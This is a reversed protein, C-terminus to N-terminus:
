RGTAAALGLAAEYARVYEAGVTSWDYRKARERGHEGLVLAQGPAQLLEIVVAVLDDSQGPTVYRAAEGAVDRFAGLDSAVVACGAAMAEAVVIGFSEGRRNPAVYVLSSALVERKESGAVRGLFAVGELKEDRTAGMVLLEADPIAARIGPWAGLLVDLGKRPEDRGLFAVRHPLREVELAYSGVDIANPVIRVPGWRAPVATAATASVATVVARRLRRGVPLFGYLTKAWSPPDAHFTAVMPKDMGLGTWGILPVLPEHLHIVDVPDLAAGMSRRIAPSLTIPAISDNARVRRTRGVAVSGEGVPGTGAGVVVAEHGTVRLEEALELVLQQVGGPASIDYPCVLGIKM